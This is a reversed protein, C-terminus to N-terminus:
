NCILNASRLFHGEDNVKPRQGVGFFLWPNKCPYLMRFFGVKIRQLDAFDTAAKKNPWRGV